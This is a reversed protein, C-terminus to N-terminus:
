RDGIRRNKKETFNGMYSDELREPHFSHTMNFKNMKGGCCSVLPVDFHSSLAKQLAFWAKYQTRDYMPYGVLHFILDVDGALHYYDEPFCIEYCLLVLIKNHGTEWIPYGNKSPAEVFGEKKEGSTLHTKGRYGM